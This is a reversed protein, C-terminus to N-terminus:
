YFYVDCPYPKKRNNDGWIASQPVPKLLINFKQGNLKKANEYSLTEIITVAGFRKQKYLGVFEFEQSRGNQGIKITHEKIEIEGYLNISVAKM